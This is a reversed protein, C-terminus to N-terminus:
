HKGCHKFIQNYSSTVEQPLQRLMARRSLPLTIVSSFKSVDRVLERACNGLRAVFGKVLPFM